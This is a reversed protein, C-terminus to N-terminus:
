RNNQMDPIKIKRALWATVLDAPVFYGDNPEVRYTEPVKHAELIIKREAFVAVGIVTGSENLLPGGSNGVRIPTSAQIHPFMSAGEFDSFAALSKIKGSIATKAVGLPIGVAYVTDGIHMTRVSGLSLPRVGRTAERTTKLVGVDIDGRGVGQAVRYASHRKCDHTVIEHVASKIDISHGATLIYGESIVFGSSVGLVEQTFRDRQRVLVVSSIAERVREPVNYAFSICGQESFVLGPSSFAANEHTSGSFLFFVFFLLPKKM